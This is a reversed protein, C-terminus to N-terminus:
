RYNLVIDGIRAVNGNTASFTIVMAATQGPTIWSSLNANTLSTITWTTNTLASGTYISAGTSVNYINISVSCGSNAM